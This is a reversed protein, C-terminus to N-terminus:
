THPLDTSIVSMSCFRVSLTNGMPTYWGGRPPFVTKRFALPAYIAFNESRFVIWSACNRKVSAVRSSFPGSPKKKKNDHFGCVPRRSIFAGNIRTIRRTCYAAHRAIKRGDAFYYFFFDGVSVVIIANKGRREGTRGRPPCPGLTPRPPTFVVYVRGRIVMRRRLTHGPYDGKPTGACM